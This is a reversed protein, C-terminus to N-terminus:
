EQELEMPRLSAFDALIVQESNCYPRLGAALAAGNAPLQRLFLALDGLERPDVALARLAFALGRIKRGNLANNMAIDKFTNYHFWRLERAIFHLRADHRALRVSHALRGTMRGPSRMMSMGQRRLIYSGTEVYDMPSVTSLLLCLLWDEGYTLRPDFGGIKALLEKRLLSAGLPLWSGILGRTLVPSKIRHSSNGFELKQQLRASFTVDHVVDDPGLIAYNGAIWSTDPRELRLQDAVELKTNPWLDDSDIYGLWDHQAIDVGAMRAVAPGSNNRQRVVSVRRDSSAVAELAKRTNRDTSCDDVLLLEIDHQGVQLLVSQVAAELQAPSTNYVPCIVSVDM